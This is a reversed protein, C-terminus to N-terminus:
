QGRVANNNLSVNLMNFFVSSATGEVYPTVSSSSSDLKKERNKNRKVARAIACRRDQRFTAQCMCDDVLRFCFCGVLISLAVFKGDISARRRKKNERMIAALSQLAM